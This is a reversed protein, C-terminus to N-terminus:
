ANKLVRRAGNVGFFITKARPYEGEYQALYERADNVKGANREKKRLERLHQEAQQIAESKVMKSKAMAGVYLSGNSNYTKM